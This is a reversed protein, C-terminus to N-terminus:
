ALYKPHDSDLTKTTEITFSKHSTENPYEDLPAIAYSYYPSFSAIRWDYVPSWLEHPYDAGVWLRLDPNLQLAVWLAYHPHDPSM